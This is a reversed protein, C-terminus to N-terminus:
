GGFAGTFLLYVAILAAVAISYVSWSSFGVLQVVPGPLSFLSSGIGFYASAVGNIAALWAVWRAWPWMRWLGLTTLLFFGTALYAVGSGGFSGTLGTLLANLLCLLAILSVLLPRRRRYVPREVNIPDYSPAPPPAPASGPRVPTREVEGKDNIRYPM